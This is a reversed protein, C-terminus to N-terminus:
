ELGAVLESLAKPTPKSSPPRRRLRDKTVGLQRAMFPLSPSEHVLASWGEEKKASDHLAAFESLPDCRGGIDLVQMAQAVVAIRSATWSKGGGKNLVCFTLEPPRLVSVQFYINFRGIVGYEIRRSGPRIAIVPLSLCRLADALADRTLLGAAQCRHSIQGADLWADYALVAAPHVYLRSWDFRKTNFSSNTM